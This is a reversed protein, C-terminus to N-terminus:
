ASAFLEIISLVSIIFLDLGNAEMLRGFLTGRLERFSEHLMKHQFEYALSWVDEDNLQRTNGRSILPSMWSVSMFQWLTLNDEPSRLQSTPPNFAPSINDTPLVPDRMPMLLIIIIAAFAIVISFLSPIETLGFHASGDVVVILQSVLISSYIILLSKPTTVPRYIAVLLCAVAWSATPCIM